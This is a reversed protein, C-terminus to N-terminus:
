EGRLGEQPRNYIRPLKMLDIEFPCVFKVAHPVVEYEISRGYFHEGDISMCMVEASSLKVKKARYHSVMAPLKRYKGHTYGSIHSLIKIISANKVVYVDLVGDDPHADIAPYMNLGYCPANAVMISLFEGEIKEDDIEILYKQAEKGGLIMGVGAVMYSFDGPLGMNILAEGLVSAHAEIGTMGYCIGYNNGCRILDMPVPADFVQSQFLSFLKENKSGFYKLFSNAIGYPYSAVEVHPLGVIGNIVEFLTCTGGIVHIRVIEGTTVANLYQRIFIISDRCWESVYVDYNINPHQAFFAAISDQVPKTKYKIRKAAPNIIFLHRRSGPVPRSAAANLEM